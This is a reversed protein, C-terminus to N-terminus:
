SDSWATLFEGLHMDKRRSLESRLTVGVRSSDHRTIEGTMSFLRLALLYTNLACIDSYAQVDAYRGRQWADVVNDESHNLLGPYGFKRATEDLGPRDDPTPSMWNCIDFHLDGRERQAHWYAPYSVGHMLTRFHVLPLLMQSGDWSVMHGNRLTVRYFAHLMDVESHTALNLSEINVNDVSHQILTIGAIARQDWRLVESSGTQQKRRHFLVKSVAKDDLDHLNFLRRTTATDPVTSIAFVSFRM